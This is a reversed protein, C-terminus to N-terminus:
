NPYTAYKLFPPPPDRYEVGFRAICVAEAARYDEDRNINNPMLAPEDPLARALAALVDLRVSKVHRGDLSGQIDVVWPSRLRAAVAALARPTKTVLQGPWFAM